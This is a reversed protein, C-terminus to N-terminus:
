PRQDTANKAISWAFRVREEITAYPTHKGDVTIGWTSQQFVWPLVTLFARDQFAKRQAAAHDLQATMRKKRRGATYGKAYGKQFAQKHAEDTM